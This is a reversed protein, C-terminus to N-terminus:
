RMAMSDAFMAAPTRRDEWQKIDMETSSLFGSVDM